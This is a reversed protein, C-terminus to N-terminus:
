TAPRRFRERPIEAVATIEIMLDRHYLRAVEVTTTVPFPAAFFEKRIDGAAMFQGIDTSYHVLSVIDGMRGGLSALVDRINELVKRVQARMDQAGVVQGERDLSVQGKLHVIQGEGQLVAMSFAGFPAWVGAPNVADVM